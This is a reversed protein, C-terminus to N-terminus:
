PRTIWLFDARAGDLESPRTAMAEEASSMGDANLLSLTTLNKIGRARLRDPLGGGYQVHFEGVIIVLSQEPHQRLFEAAQWAMTDDWISQAVFYNQAAAPDPLHGIAEKFREFYRANGVQFQPPLLSRDSPSLSELGSKAVKSTLSRPANLAVVMERGLRPLQVQPRYFEFSFGGWGVAKLFDPESLVGQRWRNVATQELYGFFEMGVSVSLGNEQAKKIVQLQQLQHFAFAHQEGLVLVGGPQLRAVAREFSASDGSRGDIFRQTQAHVCATTLLSLALVVGPHNFLLGRKQVKLRSINFIGTIMAKLFQLRRM